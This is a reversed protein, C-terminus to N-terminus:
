KQPIYNFSNLRDKFFSKVLGLALALALARFLWYTTQNLKRGMIGLRSMYIIVGCSWPLMSVSSPPFKVTTSHLEASAQSEVGLVAVVVFFCFQFGYSPM